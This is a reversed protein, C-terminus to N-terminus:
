GASRILCDLTGASLQGIGSDGAAMDYYRGDVVEQATSFDRNPPAINAEYVIPHSSSAATVPGFQVSRSCVRGDNDVVVEDEQLVMGAPGIASQMRATETHSPERAQQHLEEETDSVLSSLGELRGVVSSIGRDVEILSEALQHSVQGRGPWPAPLDEAAYGPAAGAPSNLDEVLARTAASLPRPTRATSQRSNNTNNDVSNNSDVSMASPNAPRPLDGPFVIYLTSCYTPEVPSVFHHKPM